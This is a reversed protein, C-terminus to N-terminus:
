IFIRNHTQIDLSNLMERTKKSVKKDTEQDDEDPTGGVSAM